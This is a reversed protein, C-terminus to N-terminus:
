QKADEKKFGELKHGDVEDIAKELLELFFQSLGRKTVRKRNKEKLYMQDFAKNTDFEVTMSGDDHEITNLIKVQPIGETKM